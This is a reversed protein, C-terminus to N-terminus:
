KKRICTYVCMHVYVCASPPINAEELAHLPPPAQRMNAHVPIRHVHTYM